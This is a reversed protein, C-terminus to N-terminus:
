MQLMALKKIRWKVTTTQIGLGIKVGRDPGPMKSVKSVTKINFLLRADVELKRACCRSGGFSPQHVPHGSAPV